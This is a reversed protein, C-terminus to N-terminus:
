ITKQSGKFVGLHFDGERGPLLAVATGHNRFFGTCSHLVCTCCLCRAHGIFFGMRAGAVNAHWMRRSEIKASQDRSRQLVHTMVTAEFM